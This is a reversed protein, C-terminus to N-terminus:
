PTFRGSGFDTQSGMKFTLKTVKGIKKLKPKEYKKKSINTRGKM